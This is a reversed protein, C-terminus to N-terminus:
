MHFRLISFDSSDLVLLYSCLLFYLLISLLAFSLSTLDRLSFPLPYFAWFYIRELVTLSSFLHCVWSFISLPLLFLDELAPLSFISLSPPLYPFISPCQEVPWLGCHARTGTSSSSSSSSSIFGLHVSYIYKESILPNDEGLALVELTIWVWWTQETCNKLM